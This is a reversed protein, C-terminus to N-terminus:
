KLILFEYVQTSRMCFLEGLCQLTEERLTEEGHIKRMIKHANHMDDTNLKKNHIVRWHHEIGSEEFLAVNQACFIHPCPLKKNLFAMHVPRRRYNFPNTSIEAEDIMKDAM